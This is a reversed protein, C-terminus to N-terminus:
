PAAGSALPKGAVPDITLLPVGYNRLIRQIKGSQRRISDDLKAKLDEDDKRVAMVIDWAFPQDSLGTEIPAQKLVLRSGYPKAFYGAFPGWVIAVDIKGDAVAKVVKGQPDKEDAGGWMSYGVVNGGLNHFALAHAPPSNAGDNGITHLGIKLNKWVPDAYDSLNLHRDRRTVISYSSRYYPQTTKVREVGVPVGIVVDCRGANLTQRIFGQRQRQWTYALPMKLDKALIESIKNEFGQGNENSFPLNDPEACVRLAAGAWVKGFVLHSILLIVLSAHGFRAFWAMVDVRSM